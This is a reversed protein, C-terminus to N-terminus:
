SVFCFCEYLVLKWLGLRMQMERHIFISVMVLLDPLLHVLFLEHNPERVIGIISAFTFCDNAELTQDCGAEDDVPRNFDGWFSFQFLYKVFIVAQTYFVLVRWFRHSPFPRSLTGWM